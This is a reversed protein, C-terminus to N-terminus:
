KQGAHCQNFLYGNTIIDSNYIINNEDCFPIIQKSINEIIDIALLPEGGFWVIKLQKKESKILLNKIFEILKNQTEISMKNNDNCHKEFCYPCNFNCALTTAITLHVISDRLAYSLITFSKLYEQEDFDVVMGLKKLKEILIDDLDFKNLDMFVLAEQINLECYSSRLSNFCGITTPSIQSIINYKSLHWEGM